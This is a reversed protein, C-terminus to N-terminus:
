DEKKWACAVVDGNQGRYYECKECESLTIIKNAHYRKSDPRSPCTVKQPSLRRYKIQEPLEM